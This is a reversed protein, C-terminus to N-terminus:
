GQGGEGKPFSELAQCIEQNFQRKEEARLKDCGPCPLKWCQVSGRPLALHSFVFTHASDCLM